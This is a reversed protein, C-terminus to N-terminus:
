AGGRYERVANVMAVYNELPVYDPISNGTGFAIGGGNECATLIERVRGKVESEPIRCLVDMDIGGFNGIRGGYKEVWHSFPAIEDENSHKADIGAAILDDMVNFINGCSHLLFPKGYGHVCDIIRRYSPIILERIHEASILTNSKFGMDDGFRLVCFMGGYERMFREWITLSVEGVKRFLAKYLEEDDGLIYCLHMFGTIEQVCEFIGNGVGGVAKMGAPMMKRLANLPASFRNFYLEPIEDWPYKLFDAYTNIVSEGHGGLLGAHPMVNGICCEYSVTDYGMQKFFGCFHAFFEEMDRADGEALPAFPKGAVKEMASSAIHHEYLPLRAARINRAANELNKYDPEFDKIGM